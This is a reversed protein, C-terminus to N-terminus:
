IKKKFFLEIKPPFPYETTIKITHEIVKEKVLIILPKIRVCIRM